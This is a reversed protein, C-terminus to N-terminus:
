VFRQRARRQARRGESQTAGFAGVAARAAIPAAREDVYANFRDDNPAVIVRLSGWPGGDQGPRRIDVMEGPTARFAVTQSDVGGSGGVRFSGGTKFGTLGGLIDSGFRGLKGWISDGGEKGLIGFVNGLVGKWDKSSISKFLGEMTAEISQGLGDFAAATEDTATAAPDVMADQLRPGMWDAIATVMDPIYSHGVVADYLNFFARKVQDVKEVVGRVVDMFRDLLWAKVGEYTQRVWSVVEPFLTQFANGISRVAAMVAQGLYGWMASFDGRLLAGFARLINTVVNIAGTIIDIAAGFVRSVWEGFTKLNSTASEPSGDGFIAAFVEGVASVAGKLADWLPALKPGVNEQLSKGFSQVIPIIDDRFVYFAVGVAAVAAAVALFPAGIAGVIPLLVGLSAVVAGAAILLPGLAAAVLGAVVVFQQMGPSLQGFRGALDSFVAAVKDVMPLLIAGIDGAMSAFALRMREMPNAADRAAQASGGFQRELEALMIAQAGATDGVGQMAKIQDEQETTFQIGVRRLAALGRVPDNLAKGVMLTSSQLDQGLRASLDLAAQQARDFSEGAINGFTLLNATVGRLIQDDEFLSSGALRDAQEKLQELSRGSVGGMSTIAAQVQGMADRMEAAEGVAAAGLAMLPGSIAATMGTGVAAMTTGIGQLRRGADRLHKQAASLGDTFAASDLGLTVRLAGIVASAM